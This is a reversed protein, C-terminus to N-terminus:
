GGAVKGRSGGGVLGVRGLNVTHQQEVGATEVRAHHELPDLVLVGRLDDAQGDVEALWALIVRHDFVLGQTEASQLTVDHVRALFEGV